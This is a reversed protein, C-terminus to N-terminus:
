TTRAPAAFGSTSSNMWPPAHDSPFLLGSVIRLLVSSGPAAPEAFLLAAILAATLVAAAAGQELVSQTSSLRLRAGAM